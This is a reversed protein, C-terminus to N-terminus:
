QRGQARKDDICLKAYPVARLREEEIPRGCIACRGYTGEDLRQLAGEVKALLHEANEELGGDLERMFTESASDAIHDDQGISLDGTEETLSDRHNVTDIAARLRNRESELEARIETLDLTM